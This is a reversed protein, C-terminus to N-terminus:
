DPWGACSPTARSSTSVPARGPTILSADSSTLPAAGPPQRAAGPWHSRRSRTPTKAGASSSRRSLYDDVVEARVGVPEPDLRDAPHQALVAQRDGRAHDHCPQPPCGSTEPSCDACSTSRPKATEQRRHLPLLPRRPLRSRRNRNALQRLDETATQDNSHRTRGPQQRLAGSTSPSGSSTRATPTCGPSCPLPPASSPTAANGTRPPPPNLRQGSSYGTM